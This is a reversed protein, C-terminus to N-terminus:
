SVLTLFFKTPYKLNFVIMKEDGSNVFLCWRVLHQCKIKATPFYRATSTNHIRDFSDGIDIWSNGLSILFNVTLNSEREPLCLLHLKFNILLFYPIIHENTREWFKLVFFSFEISKKRAISIRYKMEEWERRQWIWYELVSFTVKGYFKCLFLYPRSSSSTIPSFNQLSAMM